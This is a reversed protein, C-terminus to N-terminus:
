SSQRSAGKAFFVLLLMDEEIQFFHHTETAKVFLLDGKVLERDGDQLQVRARGELVYYVEDDDHPSQLDESGAAIRYLGLSLSPVDFFARYEHAVMDKALEEVAFAQWGAPPTEKVM